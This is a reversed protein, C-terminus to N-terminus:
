LEQPVAGPNTDTWFAGDERFVLWKKNGKRNFLVIAGAKGFVYGSYNGGGSWSGSSSLAIISEAKSYKSRSVEGSYTVEVGHWEGGPQVEIRTHNGSETKLLRVNKFMSPVSDGPVSITYAPWKYSQGSFKKEAM